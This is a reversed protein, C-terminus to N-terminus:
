NVFFRIRSKFRPPNPSNCDYIVVGEGAAEEDRAAGAVLGLCYGSSLGMVAFALCTLM